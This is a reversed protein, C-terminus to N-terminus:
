SELQVLWYNAQEAMEKVGPSVAGELEVGAEALQRLADRMAILEQRTLKITYTADEKGEM